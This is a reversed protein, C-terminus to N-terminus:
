FALVPRVGMAEVRCDYADGNFDIWVANDGWFPQINYVMTTGYPTSSRYFCRYDGYPVQDAFGGADTIKQYKANLLDCFHSATRGTNPNWRLHGSENYSDPPDPYGAFKVVIDYLQGGSPLYWGSCNANLNVGKGSKNKSQYHAAYWAAPYVINSSSNKANLKKTETYGDKDLKGQTADSISQVPITPYSGNPGWSYFGAVGASIAYGHTWGHGQDTTSTTTNFVLGVATDDSFPNVGVHSLAGSAYYFDGIRITYPLQPKLEKYTNRSTQSTIAGDTNNYEPEQIVFKVSTSPQMLYYYYGNNRYPQPGETSSLTCLASFKYNKDTTLYYDMKNVGIMCMQHLPSFTVTAANTGTSTESGSGVQLDNVQMGALTSQTTTIPWKTIASAFFSAADTTASTTNIAPLGTATAKYPYYTFYRYGNRRILTESATPVFTATSGSNSSFKMPYNALIVKNNSDLVYLGIQDGSQYATVPYVTGDSLKTPFNAKVTLVKVSSSGIAYTLTTGASWTGSLGITFVKAPQFPSSYEVEIAADAPLTQPVMMFYEGNETLTVNSTLKSLGSLTFTKKNADTEEITWAKSPIDFTGIYRINKLTIRTITGSLLEDGVVFRVATLAHNFKLNVVKDNNSFSYDNIAYLVDPQSAIADPATYKFTNNSVYEVGNTNYPQYAYFTVKGDQPMNVENNALMFNKATNRSAHYNEFVLDSGKYCSIGMSTISSPDSLQTGRTKVKKGKGSQQAVGGRFTSEYLPSIFLSDTVGEVRKASGVAKSEKALEDASILKTDNVSVSFQLVDASTAHEYTDESCGTISFIAVLCITCTIASSVYRM